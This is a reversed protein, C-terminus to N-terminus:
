VKRRARSKRVKPKIRKALFVPLAFFLLAVGVLLIGEELALFSFGSLMSKFLVSLAAITKDSGPLAMDAWKTLLTSSIASFVFVLLASFLFSIGLWHMQSKIGRAIIIILAIFGFAFVLCIRRVAFLIQVLGKARALSSLTKEPLVDKASITTGPAFLDSPLGFEISKIAPDRLYSVFSSVFGNVVAKEAELMEPKMQIVEVFGKVGLFNEDSGAEVSDLFTEYLGAEGIKSIVFEKNLFTSDFANVILVTAISFSAFLAFFFLLVLRM